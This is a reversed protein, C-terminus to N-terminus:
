YRVQIVELTRANHVRVMKDKCTSVLKEGNFSFAISYLLDNLDLEALVEGTGVDWLCTKNDAGTLSVAIIITCTDSM